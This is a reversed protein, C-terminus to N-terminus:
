PFRDYTVMWFLDSCHNVAHCELLGVPSLPPYYLLHFAGTQFNLSGAFVELHSVPFGPWQTGEGQTRTQGSGGWFGLPPLLSLSM